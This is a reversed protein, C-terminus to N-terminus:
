IKLYLVNYNILSTDLTVSTNCWVMIFECVSLQM